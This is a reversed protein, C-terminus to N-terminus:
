HLSLVFILLYTILNIFHWFDFIEGSASALPRRSHRNFILHKLANGHNATITILLTPTLELCLDAVLIGHLGIRSFTYM